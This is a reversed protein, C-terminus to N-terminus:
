MPDGVGVEVTLLVPDYFAFCFVRFEIETGEDLPPRHSLTLNYLKSELDPDDKLAQELVQNM